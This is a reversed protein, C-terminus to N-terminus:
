ACGRCAARTACVVGVDHVELPQRHLREVLVQQAGVALRPDDGGVVHERALGPRALDVGLALEVLAHVRDDHVGLVPARPQDVLEPQGGRADVDDRVPDQARGAVGRQRASSGPTRRCRRATSRGAADRCPCRRARRPTAPCRARRATSRRAGRAHVGRRQAGGRRRAHAEDLAEDGLALGGREEAAGVEGHQGVALDLLRADEEGRQAEGHREHEGVDAAKGLDRGRARGLEDRRAVGRRQM